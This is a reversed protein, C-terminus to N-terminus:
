KCFQKFSLKSNGVKNQFTSTDLELCLMQKKKRIKFGAMNEKFFNTPVQLLNVEGSNDVILLIIQIKENQIKSLPIEFWWVPKASNEKSFHTNASNFDIGYKVRAFELAEKKNM